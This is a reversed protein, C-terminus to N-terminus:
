VVWTIISYRTGDTVPMIEHPYMFNSPFVLIDGANLKYVLERNFLAVEGGEYADNMSMIVTLARPQEKFSDSHQIYFDGVEYKLLEYGSDEQIEM